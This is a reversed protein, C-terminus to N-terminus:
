MGSDEGSVTYSIPTLTGLGNTSFDTARSDYICIAM